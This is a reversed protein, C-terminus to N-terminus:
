DKYIRNLWQQFDSVSKEQNPHGELLQLNALCNCKNMYSDQCEQAIGKSTLQRRSTFFNKPYIHDQNFQNRYDLNPYLLSLVLFAYRGRYKTSLLEEVEEQGFKM